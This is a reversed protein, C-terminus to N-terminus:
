KTLHIIKSFTSKQDDIIRKNGYVFFVNQNIVKQIMDSM